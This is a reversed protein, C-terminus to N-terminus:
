HGKNRHGIREEKKEEKQSKRPAYHITHIRYQHMLMTIGHTARTTSVAKQLDLDKSIELKSTINLRM